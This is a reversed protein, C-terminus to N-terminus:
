NMFKVLVVRQESTCQVIMTTAEKYLHIIIFLMHAIVRM